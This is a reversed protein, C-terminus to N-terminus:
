AFQGAAFNVSAVRRALSCGGVWLQRAALIAMARRPGEAGRWRSLLIWLGLGLALVQAPFVARNYIEFLRHYTRPSFLLFSSLRYTWWESM